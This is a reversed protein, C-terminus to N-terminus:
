WFKNYGCLKSLRFIFNVCVLATQSGLTKANTSSYRLKVLWFEPTVFLMLNWMLWCCGDFKNRQENTELVSFSFVANSSALTKCFKAMTSCFDSIDM